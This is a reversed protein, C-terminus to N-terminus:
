RNTWWSRRADPLNLTRDRM